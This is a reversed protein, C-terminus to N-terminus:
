CTGGGHGHVDARYFYSQRDPQESSRSLGGALDIVQESHLCAIELVERFVIRHSVTNLGDREGLFEDSHRPFFLCIKVM